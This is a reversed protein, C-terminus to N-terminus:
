GQLFRLLSGSRMIGSNQGVWNLSLWHYQRFATLNTAIKEAAVSFLDLLRVLCFPYM